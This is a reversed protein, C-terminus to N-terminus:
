WLEEYIRMVDAKTPVKPNTATCSDALAADAMQPIKSRYEMEQINGMQSISLPINMEKNMFQIWNVLARVTTITNFNQLGLLRAISVYKEVQKPYEKQSRSHINIGSNFEIIHPLLMANARGHAIHFNAGLQHAMSHTIGLGATNFSLGALCSAVHMKQRAHMDSGDLYARLLFVGCIEMAKEALAASFENHDTSVYSELAHTFVDMGTDATITPPVSKVLEADLIAEDATLSPSILPYKVKAETDNVVAFSTVESGTGSTTPVAILGVDSYHNIKLAFERIAKSSDIASGGGVAIVAEPQYSLFKKVGDAVKDVPADPVVNSFIDYEIGGKALPETILDIMKSQVVFPDTIILVRKYPIERLRDLANDGFHIVTKMGFTKM